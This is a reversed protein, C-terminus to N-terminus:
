PIIPVDRSPSRADRDITETRKMHHAFIMKTRSDHGDSRLIALNRILCFKTLKSTSSLADQITRLKSSNFNDTLSM